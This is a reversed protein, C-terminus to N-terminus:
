YFLIDKVQTTNKFKRDENEQSAFKLLPIDTHSVNNTGKAGVDVDGSKISTPIDNKASPLNYIHANPMGLQHGTNPFIDLQNQTNGM